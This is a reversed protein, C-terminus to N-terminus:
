HNGLGKVDKKEKKALEVLELEYSKVSGDQMSGPSLDGSAFVSLFLPQIRELFFLPIGMDNFHDSVFEYDDKSLLEKLTTDGKMFLKDMLGMLQGMDGFDSVDIEFAVQESEGLAKLTGTPYFFDKEPMLHITGFLYSDFEVEDSSIKWLLAKELPKIDDKVVKETTKCQVLFLSSFLLGLFLYSSYRKLM